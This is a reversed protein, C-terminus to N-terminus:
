IHGHGAGSTGLADAISDKAGALSRKPPTVAQFAIRLVDPLTRVNLREMMHSRHMEVTRISLGLEFALIKNSRGAMLGQLIDRERPTLRDILARAEGTLAVHHTANALQAFVRSLTTLMVEEECPKELFDSAGLRMARVATAVDGHGTMMIVPLTNKRSGLADLVDFGDFEPMRVDLLVCGPRLTASEAILERGSWFNYTDFGVTKLFFAVAGGVALDDDVIYVRRDLEEDYRERFSRDNGVVM